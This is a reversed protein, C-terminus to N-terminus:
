NQKAVKKFYYQMLKDRLNEEHFWRWIVSTVIQRLKGKIGQVEKEMWKLQKENFEPLPIGLQLAIQCLAYWNNEVAAQKAKIFAEVKAKKSEASETPPCLDPHTLKTIKRFLAQIDPESITEASEAIDETAGEAQGPEVVDGLEMSSNPAVSKQAEQQEKIKKKLEENFAAKADEFVAEHYELDIYLYNLESVLKQHKKKIHRNASM